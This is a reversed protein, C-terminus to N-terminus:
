ITVTLLSRIVGQFYDRMCTRKMLDEKETSNAAQCEKRVRQVEERAREITPSTPQNEESSANNAM